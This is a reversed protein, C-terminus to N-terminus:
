LINLKLGGIIWRGPLPVGPIEEYSKNLLNTATIFINFLSFNRNLKTDITFHDGLTVRDEYNITWSQTIAFPLSHFLKISLDHKLHELVYRTNLDLDAKDSNLYTYDFALRQIIDNSVNRLNFMLGLEFGNTNIKTFNRAKWIDDSNDLVYDILNKGDKIFYSTKFNVIGYDYNVGVEYNDSEEPILNFNGLTIPDSYYLETYTPIRFARGYNAFIKLNDSFNYAADIGPWFKWNIQPYYYAFGGLSFNLNKSASIKQEIFFGNTQRKHEGLNNSAIQDQSYEVGFSTLDGLINTSIQIEGGYVNTEHNNKYFSHDFKNLVFEDNNKRWYIKPMINLDDLEIEASLAALYTETKEAQNPFRTTYYSNAGFDKKTYGLITKVVTSSFNFSNNISFIHNDFETNTRYGDSKSKEYSMHHNTNGSKLSGNIGLNFYNNEGGSLNLQLNNIANQKPIINIVGSFANAGYSRSGQGKLIEIREIQSFSIPLNMNHHGTQPDSLKIGDILILTQEFSGGRISVDAQVGQPGRQKIDLGSNYELLDHLNNVPLQAIEQSTIVNLSRGVESFITPVRNATVIISDLKYNTETQAITTICIISQIYFLLFIYRM